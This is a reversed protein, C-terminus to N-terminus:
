LHIFEIYNLRGIAWMYDVIPSEPDYFNWSAHISSWEHLSIVHAHIQKHNVSVDDNHHIVTEQVKLDDFLIGTKGTMTGLKITVEPRVPRFYFTHHHWDLDDSATSHKDQKTYVLFVHRNEDLNVYGEKNALVSGLIPPHATVFTVRYLHDVKINKIKQYIEGEVFIFSRGDMAQNKRSELVSVCTRETYNWNIPLATSSGSCLSVNNITEWNISPNIFNEFSPNDAINDDLHEMTTPEPHTTDVTVGNSSATTSVHGIYDVAKVM